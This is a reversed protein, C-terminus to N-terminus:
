PRSRPKWTAEGRRYVGRRGSIRLSAIPIRAPPMRGSSRGPAPAGNVLHVDFKVNMGHVYYWDPLRPKMDLLKGSRVVSRARITGAAPTQGDLLLTGLRLAPQRGLEAVRDPEDVGIELPTINIVEHRLSKGLLAPCRRPAAPPAPPPTGM